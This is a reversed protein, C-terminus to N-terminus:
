GSRFSYWVTTGEEENALEVADTLLRKVQQVYEPKAEIGALLGVSLPNPGDFPTRKAALVNVKQITPHSTLMDLGPRTTLASAIKGHLHAQRDVEGGFADFIGFSTRGSRFSYWVTTGEEENALGVADTLLREVQQVYEPKAEIGALLGVKLPARDAPAAEAGTAASSSPADASLRM